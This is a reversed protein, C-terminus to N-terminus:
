HDIDENTNEKEKVPIVLVQVSLANVRQIFLTVNRNWLSIRTEVNKIGISTPSNLEEPTFGVGNDEIIIYLKDDYEKVEINLTCPEISPEIGHVVANEVLPQLLLKPLAFDKLPEPCDIHFTFREGFRLHYLSCYHQLFELEKGLTTENEHRLVYRLLKAFSYFSENLLETEGIQNLTIFSYITNIIFHPQIQSQLAQFQLEQQNLTLEYENKIKEQLQYAMRNISVAIDHFEQIEQPECRADLNGNKLENLTTLIKVVSTRIWRKNFFLIYSIIISVFCFFIILMFYIGIQGFVYKASFLVHINLDYGDLAESNHVWIDHDYHVIDTNIDDLLNKSIQKNSYILEGDGNLFLIILPHSENLRSFLDNLIKAKMNILIINEQEPNHLNKLRRSIFFNDTKLLEDQDKTEAQPTFAIKGDKKMAAHYWSRETLPATKSSYQYGNEASFFILEGESLFILDHFDDRSYNNVILTSGIETSLQNKEAASLSHLDTKSQLYYHSFPARMINDIDQIHKNMYASILQTNQKTQMKLTNFQYIGLLGSICLCVLFIPLIFSIAFSTYLKYSLSPRKAPNMNTEKDKPIIGSQEASQDGPIMM